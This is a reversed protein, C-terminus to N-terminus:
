HSNESGTGPSQASGEISKNRRFLIGVPVLVCYGIVLLIPAVVLPMTGDWPDQGLAIYGLVISLIGLALIQYNIKTLPLVSPLAKQKVAARKEIQAM